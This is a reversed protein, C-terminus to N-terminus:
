EAADRQQWLQVIQQAARPSLRSFDAQAASLKPGALGATGRAQLLAFVTDWAFDAAKCLMLIPGVKDTRLLRDLVQTPISWLLSLAPILHDANGTAALERFDGETLKGDPHKMLLDRLAGAHDPQASAGAAIDGSVKALVQRILNQTEADALAFLRHRVVDTAQLLLRCFLHPPVDERQIVKNALADDGAARAALAAFGAPSFRAGANAAVSHLVADNGRDVLVDSVPENVRRRVSIALLHDQSGVKAAAVLTADNLGESRRLVPGAVEIEHRAVLYRLLRPPPSDISALQESLQALSKTEIEEILHLFVDDFLEIKEQDLDSDLFLTALRALKAGRRQDPESDFASGLEALLSEPAHM